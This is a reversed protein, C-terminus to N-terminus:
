VLLGKKHIGHAEAQTHPIPVWSFSDKVLLPLATLITKKKEKKTELFMWYDRRPEHSNSKAAVRESICERNAKMEMKKEVELM